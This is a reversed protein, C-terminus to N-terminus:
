RKRAHAHHKGKSRTHTVGLTCGAAFTIVLLGAFWAAFITTNM